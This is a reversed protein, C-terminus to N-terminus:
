KTFQLAFDNVKTVIEIYKNYITKFLKSFNIYKLAMEKKEDLIDIAIVKEAGCDKAGRIAGLGM